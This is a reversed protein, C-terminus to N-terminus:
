CVLNGNADAYVIRKGAGKLNGISVNGGFPNLAIDRYAIGQEVAQVHYGNSDRIIIFQMPNAADNTSALFLQSSASKSVDGINILATAEQTNVSLGNAYLRNTHVNGNEILNTNTCNILRHNAAGGSVGLATILDYNEFDLGTTTGADFQYDTITVRSRYAGAPSGYIGTGAGGTQLNTIVIDGINCGDKGSWKIGYNGTLLTLASFINGTGSGNEFLLGNDGIVRIEHFLNWDHRNEAVGTSKDFKFAANVNHFGLQSFNCFCPGWNLTNGTVYVGNVNERNSNLTSYCLFNSMESHYCSALATDIIFLPINKSTYINSSLGQGIIRFTNKLIISSDLKVRKGAPILCTDHLATSEDVAAQIGSYSTGNKLIDIM